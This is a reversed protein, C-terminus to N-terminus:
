RNGERYSVDSIEDMEELVSDADVFLGSHEPDELRDVLTEWWGAIRAFYAVDSRLREVELKYDRREALAAQSPKGIQTLKEM